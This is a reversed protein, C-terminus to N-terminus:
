RRKNYGLRRLFAKQRSDPDDVVSLNSGPTEPAARLGATEIALSWDPPTGGNLSLEALSRAGPWKILLSGVFEHANEGTGRKKAEVFVQKMLDDLDDRGGSARFIATDFAFAALVGRSYVSSGSPAWRAGSDGILPQWGSLTVRRHVDALTRLVDRFTIQELEAGAILARYFIFGEYFWAYDGELEIGNPIWIHLLEHRLQEHIMQEGINRYRSPSSVITITNGRAEARWRDRLELDPAAVLNIQIRDSPSTGFLEEYRKFISIASEFALRDAFQWDGEIAFSIETIKVKETYSRAKGALFFVARDPEEIEYRGEAINGELTFAEQGDLLELELNLTGRYSGFSPLLDGIMLLGTEGKIWSVHAGATPDEPPTVDVLYSIKRAPSDIFVIGGEQMRCNLENGNGDFAKLSRIRSALGNSGAYSDLFRLSQIQVPLDVSIKASAEELGESIVRLHVSQASVSLAFFGILVPLVLFRKLVLAISM